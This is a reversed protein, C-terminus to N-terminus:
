ETALQGRLGAILQRMADRGVREAEPWRTVAPGWYERPTNPYRPVLHVHLHPVEEGIVYLYVHEAGEVIQLLRAIRSCTRGLASAEDDNLDGLGRVHRKPEVVLQGRYATPGALTHVHGVYILDDEFLVGGEAEDGLRHKDCVFCGSSKTPATM